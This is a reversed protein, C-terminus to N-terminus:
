FRKEDDNNDGDEVELSEQQYAGTAKFCDNFNIGTLTLRNDQSDRMGLIGLVSQINHHADKTKQQKTSTREARFKQVTMPLVVNSGEYKM